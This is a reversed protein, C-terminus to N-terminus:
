ADAAQSSWFEKLHGLRAVNEDGIRYYEGMLTGVRFGGDERKPPRPHNKFFEESDPMEDM